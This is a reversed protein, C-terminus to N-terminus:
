KLYRIMGPGLTETPRAIFQHKDYFKERGKACMLAYMMETNPLRLSDVYETLRRLIKSGTGNRQHDPVIILDQVYCIVAGDGVIRGMGVPTDGEYATLIYLSNDLAKQAQERSLVKWNVRSRLYLYTDVDRNNEVFRIELRRNLPLSYTARIGREKERQYLCYYFYCRYHFFDISFDFKHIKIHIILSSYPIIFSYYKRHNKSSIHSFLRDPM